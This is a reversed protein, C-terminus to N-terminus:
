SCGDAPSSTTAADLCLGTDTGNGIKQLRVGNANVKLQTKGDADNLRVSGSTGPTLTIDTNSAAHVPPLVTFALGLAFGAAIFRSRSM